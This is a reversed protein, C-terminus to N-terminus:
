AVRSMSGELARDRIVRDSLLGRMDAPLLM